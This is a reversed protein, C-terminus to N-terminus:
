GPTTPNTTPAPTTEAAIALEPPLAPLSTGAERAQDRAIMAAAIHQRAEEDQGSERLLQAWGYLTFIRAVRAAAQRDQGSSSGPLSPGQVVDVLLNDASQYANLAAERETALQTELTNDDLERPLTGPSDPNQLRGVQAVIPALMQKLQLRAALNRARSSHSTALLQQAGAEDFKFAAPNYISLISQWAAYETSGSDVADMRMKVEKFVEDASSRALKFHKIASELNKEAETRLEHSKQLSQALESAKAALSAKEDGNEVLAKAKATQAQLQQQIQEWTQVARQDQEKLKEIAQAVVQQQSQAIASDRQLPVLEANIREIEVALDAAQKRLEAGRQFLEVSKEGQEVQSERDAAEGQTLAETRQRTLTQIQQARKSIEGEFQSIKQKLSALSLLPSKDHNFWVANDATGQANTIEGALKQRVEKPDLARYAEVLTNGAELQAATRTIEWMHRAADIEERAAEQLLVNAAAVELQALLALADAKSAPSTGERGIAQEILKRTELPAKQDVLSQRVDAQLQLDSERRENECGVGFLFSGALAMASMAMRTWRKLNNQM